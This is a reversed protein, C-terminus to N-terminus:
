SMADLVQGLREAVNTSWGQKLINFTSEQGATFGDHDLRLRTGGGAGPSLTWTVVTDLSAGYGRREKSGGRWSYSLRRNTEVALVECDVVGDFGAAPRTRMTFRHGIQLRFDNPMLWAAILEPETLARWVKEPPHRLELEVVISKWPEAHPAMEKPM